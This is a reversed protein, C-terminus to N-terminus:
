QQEGALEKATEIVKNSLWYGKNRITELIESVSNILGRQKALLLIGVVGTISINLKQAAQRGARDDMLLIIEKGLTISLSITQQEGEDLDALVLGVSKDLPSPERVTLFDKLANEIVDSEDGIVAFLEKYVIPPISVEEFLRKLLFLKNVKALAIIPGTDSVAKV